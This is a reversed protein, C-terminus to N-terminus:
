ETQFLVSFNSETRMGKGDSEELRLGFGAGSEAQSLGQQLQAWCQQLYSGSVIDPLRSSLELFHSRRAADKEPEPTPSPGNKDVYEFGEFTVHFRGRDGDRDEILNAAELEKIIGENKASDRASNSPRGKGHTGIVIGGATEIRVIQASSDKTAAILFDLAEKSIVPETVTEAMVSESAHAAAFYSHERLKENLHREVKERLEDDAKFTDYLGEVQSRFAEVKELQDRDTGRPTDRECFYIMVPKGQEIHKLIEEVTGSDAEATPTGLRTWFVAILLDSRTILQRNLITQASNGLEPSSHTQWSLPLFVVGKDESHMVNWRALAERVVSLASAIDSPSGVMVNYVLAPYPMQHHGFDSLILDTQLRQNKEPRDDM